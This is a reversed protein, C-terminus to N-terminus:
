APKVPNGVSTLLEPNLIYGMDDAIEHPGLLRMLLNITFVGLKYRPLSPSAILQKGDSVMLQMEKGLHKIYIYVYKYFDWLM